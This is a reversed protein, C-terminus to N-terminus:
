SILELFLDKSNHILETLGFHKNKLNELKDFTMWVAEDNEWNLEAEFEEPVIGIFNHYKFGVKNDEFLYAKKLQISGFYQTEEQLERVAVRKPDHEDEDLKGGFVGWTNPEMVYGSRFAVLFRKTKKCFPLVGAAEKGWYKTSAELISTYKKM